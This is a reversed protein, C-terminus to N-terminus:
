ANDAETEEVTEKELNAEAIIDDHLDFAKLKLIEPSVPVGYSSFVPEYALTVQGSGIISSMYAQIVKDDKPHHLVIPHFEDWYGRLISDGEQLAKAIPEFSILMNQKTPIVQVQRPESGLLFLGVSTQALLMFGECLVDNVVEETFAVETKKSFM